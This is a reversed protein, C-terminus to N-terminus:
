PSGGVSWFYALAATILGGLVLRVLWTLSDRIAKVDKAVNAAREEAVAQQLEVLQLRKLIDNLDSM